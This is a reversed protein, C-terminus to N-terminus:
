QLGPLVTRALENKPDMEPVRELASRADSSQGLAKLGLGALLYRMAGHPPDPEAALMQQDDRLAALRVIRQPAVALPPCIM